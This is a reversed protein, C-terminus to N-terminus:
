VVGIQRAWSVYDRLFATVGPAREPFHPSSKQAIWEGTVAIPLLSWGHKSPQQSVEAGLSARVPDLASGGPGDTVVVLRVVANPFAHTASRLHTRLRKLKLTNGPYRHDVDEMVIIHTPNQFDPIGCALDPWTDRSGAIPTIKFERKLMFEPFSRGFALSQLSHIFATGLGHSECPTCLWELIRWFAGWQLERHGVVIELLNDHPM